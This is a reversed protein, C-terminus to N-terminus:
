RIHRRGARIAAVGRLALVIMVATVPMAAVVIGVPHEAVLAFLFWGMIAFTIALLSGLYLMLLATSWRKNFAAVIIAGIYLALPIYWWAM